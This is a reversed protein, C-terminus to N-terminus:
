SDTQGQEVVGSRVAVRRVMHGGTTGGRARAPAAPTAGVSSPARASRRPAPRARGLRRQPRGLGRLRGARRGAPRVRRGARGSCMAARSPQSPQRQTTNTTGIITYLAHVPPTQSVITRIYGVQPGPTRTAARPPRPSDHTNSLTSLSRERTIGMHSTM